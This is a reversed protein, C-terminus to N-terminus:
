EENYNSYILKNNDDYIELTTEDAIDSDIFKETSTLYDEDEIFDVKGLPILDVNNLVKELPTKPEIKCKVWVEVKYLAYM